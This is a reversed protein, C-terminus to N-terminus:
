GGPAATGAALLLRSDTGPDQLVSLRLTLALPGAPAGPDPPVSLPFTRTEGPDLWTPDYRLACHSSTWDPQTRYWGESIADLYGFIQASCGAGPEVLLVSQTGLNTTSLQLQAEETGTGGLRDVRYRVGGVVRESPLPDPARVLETSGAPIEIGLDSLGGGPADRVFDLRTSFWYRGDPLSDGLIDVLPTSRTFGDPGLTAGPAITYGLLIAICPLPDSDSRWAPTGTRSEDLFARVHMFCAGSSLDIWRDTPNAAVVRTVVMRPAAEEVATATRYRLLRPDHLPPRVDLSLHVKGADVEVTDPGARVLVGVAYEGEQRGDALIDRIRSHADFGSFVFARGPLIEQAGPPRPPCGALPEGSDTWVLRGSERDRVRLQVVCIGEGAIPGPTANRASAIVSLYTDTDTRGTWAEAQVLLDGTRASTAPPAEMPAIWEAEDVVIQFPTECSV